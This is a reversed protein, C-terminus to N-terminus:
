LWTSLIFLSLSFCKFVAKPFTSTVLLFPPLFWHSLRHLPGILDMSFGSLASGHLLFTSYTEFLFTHYCTGFAAKLDFFIFVSMHGKLAPMPSWQKLDSGTFHFYCFTFPIIHSARELLKGSFIIETIFLSLQNGM